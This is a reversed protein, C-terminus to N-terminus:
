RSRCDAGKASSDTPSTGFSPSLAEAFRDGAKEAGLRPNSLGEPLVALPSSFRDVL